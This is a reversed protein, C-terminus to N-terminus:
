QWMLLRCRKGFWSSFLFVLSDYFEYCDTTWLRNQYKRTVSFVSDIIPQSNCHSSQIQGSSFGFQQQSWWNSAFVNQLIPFERPCRWLCHCSNRSRQLRVTRYVFLMLCVLDEGWWRWLLPFESDPTFITFVNNLFVSFVANFGYSANSPRCLVSMM